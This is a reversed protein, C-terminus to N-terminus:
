EVVVGSLAAEDAEAAVKAAKEALGAEHRIVSKKVYEKIIRKAYDTKTEPNPIQNGNGDDVLPKWGHGLAVGDIVRTLVPNPITITISAM